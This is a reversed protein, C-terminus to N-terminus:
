VYCMAVDDDVEVAPVNMILEEAQTFHTRRSEQIILKIKSGM